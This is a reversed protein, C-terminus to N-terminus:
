VIPAPPVWTSMVDVTPGKVQAWVFPVTTENFLVAVPRPWFSTCAVAPVGPVACIKALAALTFPMGTFKVLQGTCDIERVSEPPFVVLKEALAPVLLLM